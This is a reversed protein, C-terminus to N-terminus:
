HTSSLLFKEWVTDLNNLETPIVLFEFFETSVSYETFNPTNNM